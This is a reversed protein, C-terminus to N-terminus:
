NKRSPRFNLLNSHCESVSNTGHNNKQFFNINKIDDFIKNFLDLNGSVLINYLINNNNSDLININCKGLLKKMIKKNFKIYSQDSNCESLLSYNDESIGGFNNLYKKITDKKIDKVSNITVNTELNNSILDLKKIVLNDLTSFYENIPSPPPTKKKLYFIFQKVIEDILSVFIDNTLEENTKILFLEKKIKLNNNEEDM